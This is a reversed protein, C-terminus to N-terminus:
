GSMRIVVRCSTGIGLPAASSTITVSLPSTRSVTSRTLSLRSASARYAMLREM